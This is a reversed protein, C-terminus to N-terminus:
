DVCDTSMKLSRAMRSLAYIANTDFKPGNQRTVYAFLFSKKEQFYCYWVSWLRM